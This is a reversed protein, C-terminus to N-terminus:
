LCVAPISCFASCQQIYRISMEIDFKDINSKAHAVFGVKISINQLIPFIRIKNTRQM